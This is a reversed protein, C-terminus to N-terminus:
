QRGRRPRRQRHGLLLFLCVKLSMDGQVPRCLCPSVIYLVEMMGPNFARLLVILKGLFIGRSNGLITGSAQAINFIPQDPQHATVSYLLDPPKPKSKKKKKKEKRTEKKEKPQIRRRKSAGADDDDEGGAVQEEEEEEEEVEEEMRQRKRTAPTSSVVGILSMEYVNGSSLALQCKKARKQRELQLRAETTVEDDGDAAAAALLAALKEIRHNYNRLTTETVLRTRPFNPAELAMFGFFGNILLKLVISVLVHNGELFKLDHRRQIMGEVYPTAYKKARYFVFHRVRFGALGREEVLFRFFDLSLVEGEESFSTKVVTRPQEALAKLGKLVAAPDADPNLLKAQYKTFAGIDEEGLGVRQHCFGFSGPLIGDDNRTEKGGTICIFGGWENGPESNYGSAMIKDVLQKQTFSKETIGLVADEAHEKELYERVTKYKSWADHKAQRHSGRTGANWRSPDPPSRGHLLQCEHVRDYTIVLREPDVASLAAAYDVKLRYEEKGDIDRAAADGEEEEGEEELSLSQQPNQLCHPLHKGDDHYLLGDMNLFRLYRRRPKQQQQQQQQDEDDDDDEPVSVMLDARRRRNSGFSVQGQGCHQDSCVYEADPFACLTFYQSFLSEASDAM